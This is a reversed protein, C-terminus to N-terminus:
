FQEEGIVEVIYPNNKKDQKTISFICHSFDIKRITARTKLETLLAGSIGWEKSYDLGKPFFKANYVTYEGNNGNKTEPVMEDAFSGEITQGVELKIYPLRSKHDKLAEDSNM